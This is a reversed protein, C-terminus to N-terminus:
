RRVFVGKLADLLFRGAPRGPSEGAIASDISRGTPLRSLEASVHAGAVLVVCGLYVAFGAALLGGITGYVAGAGGFLSSNARTRPTAARRWHRSDWWTPSCSLSWAGSPIRRM